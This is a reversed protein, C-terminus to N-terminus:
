INLPKQNGAWCYTIMMLLQDTVQDTDQCILDQDEVILDCM